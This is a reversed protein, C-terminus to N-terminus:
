YFRADIFNEGKFAIEITAPNRSSVHANTVIWGAERNILFGAGSFSGRKDKGFPYEVRTRVKVTYSKAKEFYNSQTEVNGALASFSFSFSLLLLLAKHQRFNILIYGM